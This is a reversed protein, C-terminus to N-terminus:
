AEKRWIARTYVAEDDRMECFVEPVYRSPKSGRPLPEFDPHLAEYEWARFVGRYECRLVICGRLAAAMILAGELTEPDAQISFSGVRWRGDQTVYLGEISM